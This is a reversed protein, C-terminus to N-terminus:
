VKGGESALPKQLALVLQEFGESSITDESLLKLFAEKLQKTYEIVDRKTLYGARMFYTSPALRSWVENKPGLIKSVALYLQCVEGPTLSLDSAFGDRRVTQEILSGM